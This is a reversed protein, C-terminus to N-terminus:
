RGFSDLFNEVAAFYELWSPPVFAAAAAEAERRLPSDASALGRVAERWGLGDLAGRFIARGQSVERFVPIDSTLAPVGLTLAEVLPLGYGEDFSPALLARANALLRRLGSASLGALEIVNERIPASRELMDVIQENEWGRGGILVLKPPAPGSNALDRWLNLLLLHNKRPELTAIAIFYHAKALAEDHDPRIAAALPSPLPQALIPVDVRGREAMERALRARVSESTTILATAHLAVTAMRRQFIQRYGRPWYEPYDLPLLDHIVFVRALDDRGLLWRFHQPYELAHQAVNLYIAGRPSRLSYGGAASLRAKRAQRRMLSALDQTRSIRKPEAAAERRGEILFARAADYLPDAAMEDRWASVESRFQVTESVWEPPYFQPVLGWFHSGAALRPARHVLWDAYALDVHDIGSPALVGLRHVLHTVDFIIPRPAPRDPL